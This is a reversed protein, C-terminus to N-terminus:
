TKITAHLIKVTAHLIKNNNNNCGTFNKITVHLSKKTAHPIQNGQDPILGLGRCQSCPTKTLPGGPFGFMVKLFNM